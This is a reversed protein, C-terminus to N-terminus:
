KKKIKPETTLSHIHSIIKSQVGGRDSINELTGLGNQM